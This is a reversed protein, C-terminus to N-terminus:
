GLEPLLTAAALALQASALPPPGDPTLLVAGAGARHLSRIAQGCQEPDGAVCLDALWAEPIAAALRALADPSAPAGPAEGDPAALGEASLLDHVQQALGAQRLQIGLGPGALAAAVAPRVARRAAAGDIGIRLVAPATLRHPVALGPPLARDIQERAWSVYGPSSFHALMTGDASRAAVELSRPGRVGAVVPPAQAPPCALRVESLQVHRGSLSVTQGALLSRVSRLVEDLAALPSVPYAGIQRMWHAMGHGIGAIVRGPYLRGLTALEMAALAPNRMVAPLIGLGVTIRQTAALAASAAAIGASYFCDEAIWLEAYGLSEALRAWGPIREPPWDLPFTVGIVPGIDTTM